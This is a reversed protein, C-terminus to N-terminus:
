TKYISFYIHQAIPPVDTGISNIEKLKNDINIKQRRELKKINLNSLPEPSETPEEIVELNSCWAVNIISFDFYGPKNAV